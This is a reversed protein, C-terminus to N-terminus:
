HTDAKDERCVLMSFTRAATPTAPLPHTRLPQIEAGLPPRRPPGHRPPVVPADGGLQTAALRQCQCIASQEGSHASPSKSSDM